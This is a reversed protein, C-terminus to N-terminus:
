RVFGIHLGTQSLTVHACPGCMLTGHVQTVALPRFTTGSLGVFTTGLEALALRDTVDKVERAPTTREEDWVRIIESPSYLAMTCSACLSPRGAM